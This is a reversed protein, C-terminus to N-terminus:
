SIICNKSSNIQKQQRICALSDNPIYSVRVGGYHRRVPLEYGDDCNSSSSSCTSCISDVDSEDQHQKNPKNTATLTTTNMTRFVNRHRVKNHKHNRSLQSVNVQNKAINKRKPRKCHNISKTHSYKTHAPGIITIHPDRNSTHKYDESIYINNKNVNGSLRSCSAINKDEVNRLEHQVVAPEKSM